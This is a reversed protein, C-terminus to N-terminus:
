GFIGHSLGSEQVLHKDLYINQNQAIGFKGTVGWCADHVAADTVFRAISQKCLVDQSRPITPLADSEYLCLRGLNSAPGVANKKKVLRSSAEYVGLSFGRQCALLAGASFFFSAYVHFLTPM